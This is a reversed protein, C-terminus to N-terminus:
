ELMQQKSNNEESDIKQQNEETPNKFDLDNTKKKM